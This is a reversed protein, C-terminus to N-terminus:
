EGDEQRELDLEKLMMCYVSMDDLSDNHGNEWNQTYRTIKVIIATLMCFRNFDSKSVLQIGQPFLSQFIYGIEKYNDRYLKNREVYLQAAKHLMEPVKM